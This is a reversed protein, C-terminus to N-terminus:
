TQELSNAFEAVREVPLAVLNAEYTQQDCSIPLLAGKAAIAFWRYDMRILFQLIERAPYGWPLTRDDEVEALIAPRSEGRLLRMAGHLVPLEAGEVDLKIFDVKAIEREALVDDLRRVSVRVTETPQDVAPPRLSNCWDQSGEVLFLDAEGREDGLACPVLEVNSCRNWRLHKKLRECERPSPEFAMVRGKPGVCKSLLLTYLGHHAGIDIAMMSPGLLRKVFGTEMTEFENHMLEQDLASREALWWAGFPLRLPIPMEPLIRRM